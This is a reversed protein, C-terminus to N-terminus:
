YLFPHRLFDEGIPEEEIAALEEETFRIGPHHQGTLLRELIHELFAFESVATTMETILSEGCVQRQLSSMM